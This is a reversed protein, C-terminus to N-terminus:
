KLPLPTGNVTVAGSPSVIIEASLDDPGTEVKGLQRIMAVGVLAPGGPILGMRALREVLDTVGTLRLNATAGFAPLKPDFVSRASHDVAVDADAGIHAGAAQLALKNLTLSGIAGPAKGTPDLSQQAQPDMLSVFMEAKGSLDLEASVPEHDLAGEPDLMAWLLEPLVLEALNLRLGFDQDPGAAAPATLGLAVSSMTTSVPLPLKGGSASINLGEARGDYVIGDQSVSVDVGGSQRALAVQLTEDADEVVLQSTGSGLDLTGSLSYGGALYAPVDDAAVTTPLEAAFSMKLGESMGELRTRVSKGAPPPIDVSYRAAAVTLDRAVTAIDGMRITTTGATGDLTVNVAATVPDAGFTEIKDFNLGIEDAKLDYVTDAPTGSVIMGYGQATVAGSATAKERQPGDMTVSVPLSGPFEVEVTGDGREVLRMRGLTMTISGGPAGTEPDNPMQRTLTADPVTLALGERVPLASLEYGFATALASWQDWVDAAKVDAFAPAACLALVGSFVSTRFSM